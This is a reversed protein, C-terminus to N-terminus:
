FHNLSCKDSKRQFIGAVLITLTHKTGPQKRRSETTQMTGSSGLDTDRHNTSATAPMKKYSPVSVNLAKLQCHFCILFGRWSWLICHGSDDSSYPWSPFSTELLSKLFSTSIQYKINTANGRFSKSLSHIHIDRIELKGKKSIAFNLCGKLLIAVSLFFLCTWLFFVAMGHSNVSCFPSPFGLKPLKDRVHSKQLVVFGLFSLKCSCFSKKSDLPTVQLPARSASSEDQAWACM